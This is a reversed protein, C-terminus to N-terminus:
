RRRIRKWLISATMRSLPPITETRLSVTQMGSGDLKVSSIKEQRPEGKNAIFFVTGLTDDVGSIAIVEITAAKSSGNLKADAAM